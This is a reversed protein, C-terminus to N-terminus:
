ISGFQVRWRINKFIYQEAESVLDFVSGHQRQIDLFTLRETGAFIAMQLDNTTNECFLVVGANLLFDGSLLGLKDLASRKETYSFGIRGAAQGREVYERVKAEEM